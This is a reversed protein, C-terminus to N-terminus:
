SESDIARTKFTEMVKITLDDGGYCIDIEGKPAALRESLPPHLLARIIRETRGNVEFRRGDEIVIM